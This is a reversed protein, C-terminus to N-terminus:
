INYKKIAVTYGGLKNHTHACVYYYMTHTHTGTSSSLPTTGQASRYKGDDHVSNSPEVEEDNVFITGPFKQPDETKREPPNYTYM